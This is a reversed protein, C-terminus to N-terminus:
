KVGGSRSGTDVAIVTTAAVAVVVAAATDAAAINVAVTVTM